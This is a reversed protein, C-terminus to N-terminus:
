IALSVIIGFKSCLFEKKMLSVVFSQSYKLLIETQINDILEVFSGKNQYLIKNRLTLFQVM